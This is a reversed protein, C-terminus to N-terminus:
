FIVLISFGSLIFNCVPVALHGFDAGVTRDAFMGAFLLLACCEPKYFFDLLVKAWETFGKFAYVATFSMLRQHSLDYLNGYSFELSSYLAMNLRMNNVNAIKSKAETDKM